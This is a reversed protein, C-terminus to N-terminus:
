RKRWALLALLAIGAPLGFLGTNCGGSGLGLVDTIVEGWEDWWGWDRDLKSRWITLSFRASSSGASNSVQVPITYIGEAGRAPRGSITMKTRDSNVSYGLGSPLYYPIGWTLNTGEAEITASYSYDVFGEPLSDTTIKPPM